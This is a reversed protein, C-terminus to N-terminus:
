ATTVVNSEALTAGTWVQWIHLSSKHCGQRWVFRVSQVEWRYSSPLNVYTPYTQCRFIIGSYKWGMWPVHVAIFLVQASIAGKSAGQV